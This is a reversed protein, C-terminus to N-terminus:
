RPSLKGGETGREAYRNIEGVGLTLEKRMEGALLKQSCLCTSTNFNVVNRAFELLIM